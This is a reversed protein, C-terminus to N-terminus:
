WHGWSHCCCKVDVFRGSDELSLEMSMRAEEKSLVQLGGEGSFACKRMTLTLRQVQTRPGMEEPVRLCQTGVNAEGEGADETETKM